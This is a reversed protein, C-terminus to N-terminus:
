GYNPLILSERRIRNGRREALRSNVSVQNVQDVFGWLREDAAIDQIAKNMGTLHYEIEGRAKEGDRAAIALYIARHEAYLLDDPRCFRYVSKMSKVRDVEAKANDVQKRTHPLGARDFATGHFDDDLQHFADLEGADYHRKMKDIIEGLADFDEQTGRAALQEACASELSLRIFYGEFVRRIDIPAVITGKQHPTVVLREEALRILAERVPTKSLGFATALENETLPQNPMLHLNVILKRLLRYVQRTVAGIGDLPYKEIVNKVPLEQFVEPPKIVPSVPCSSEGDAM